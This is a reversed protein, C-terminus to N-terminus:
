PSATPIAELTVQVTAAPSPPPTGIPTAPPTSIPTALPGVTAETPAIVPAPRVAFLIVGVLAAFLLAALVGGLWSLRREDPRAPPRAPASPTAPAPVPAAVVSPAVQATDVEPVALPATTAYARGQPPEEAIMQGLVVTINDNGGRHNALAILRTVADELANDRVIAVIEEDNVLGHLGDSSLVVIDDSQLATQFMDVEVDMQHGLARTIINKITSRRAQEATIIGAVLQENVLSHDITIQKIAGGRIIYARSDGVNAITLADQLVLAAVGTTGMTGRGQRYIRQNASEFATRLAEQRDSGDDEYYSGVITAVGLQSAVEGSAHGGMGDCLVLLEGLTATQPGEGAGYSDENHDRMRGVDTDGSWRLRM